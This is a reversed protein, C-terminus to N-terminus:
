GGWHDEELLEKLVRHLQPADARGRVAKMAQGVLFGLAQTRGARYDAAAQPHALLTEQALERLPESGKLPRMQESNLLEQLSAGAAAQRLLEKATTRSFEGQAVARVLLGLEGPALPPEKARWLRLVESLVWSAAQRPRGCVRAVEEFYDAREPEAILTQADTGTVALERAWRELREQPTEPLEGRVRALLEPGIDLPPLDPEPFYRYSEADEKGRQLFVKGLADDWGYTAREVREGRSLLERQRAAEAALAREVARASNMNKIETKSGLPEGARALSVNADCRLAGKEMDGSSVRLHRLVTRLSRVFARAAEPSRLEPETVIELLGVGARNLDVLTRDGAHVLKGADEELHLERIRLHEEGAEGPFSVTGGVALPSRYQTIQYGKPLDPYFYSKRDFLSSTQVQAGLALALRLALEVARRNLLPLTGPYGLCVPCTLSNPPAGFYDASCGCFLKSRTALQVHVELGIM